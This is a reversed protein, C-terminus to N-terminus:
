IYSLQCIHLSVGINQSIYYRNNICDIDRLVGDFINYEHQISTAVISWSNLIHRHYPVDKYYTIHYVHISLEDWCMQKWCCYAQLQKWPWTIFLIAMQRPTSQLNTLQVYPLTSNLIYIWTHLANLLGALDWWQIYAHIEPDTGGILAYVYNM